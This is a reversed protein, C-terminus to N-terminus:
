QNTLTSWLFSYIDAAEEILKHTPKGMGHGAKTEIRILLPNHGPDATQLTAAFKKAHMPVVRDDTDATSIITPPYKVGSKVNHLPSYAFMFDFHDANDEANGYESVWYRGVTFMHYRLMDIVPVGCHVAGFLDPRQTMCAAVLLGGNSRGEIALRGTRTYNNAILWEGAAIFDDFVNQKNQLMGAQHWAEGFESGGRLNVHAYIGGMELWALRTPSFLPTMNINFGGYGYLLTPNTGDQQMGKKYTLFMPIQTGDKSPYSVQITEYQDPDFDLTPQRHITTVATEFDYRLITPPYTFSHFQVFLETHKHKGAIFSITGATPLEITRDPTGDLHAIGLTHYANHLRAIVFQNNVIQSFAIADDQEAILEQWQDRAPNQIDIGIIRGNPADLDTQFYFVDGDNGLFDYGADMDDLLRVFDGDSDVERYYVRNRRDTGEWVRLVLFRGDDSVVPQFALDPADPRAYVLTDESQNTGLKHYYLKQHTSPLADPMEDPSPYRAYFFGENNEVWAAPTFKVWRIVEEFTDGTEIDLIRIEQWDSGGQSLNYALLRGDKSFSKMTMAITGDESLENPDLIPVPEDALSQMQYLIPQGRLSDNQEFFYHAGRKEPPSYKPFNWLKTFQEKLQAHIPLESIFAETLENEAAVWAKTEASAPDEMWRYPDPVATGHYNDVVDAQRAPPYHFLKRSVRKM